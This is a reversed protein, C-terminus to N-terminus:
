DRNKRIMRKIFAHLKAPQVPKHLMVLGSQQVEKLKEPATDGSIIVAPIDAKFENRILQIAQIGTKEERLRLDAIIVDPSQNKEKLLALAENESGAIVTEYGWDMILAKMADRIISEDDIVLILTDAPKNEYHSTEMSDESQISSPNGLPLTIIFHSGVGLESEVKVTHNLLRSIRDVIALGLGLGKNRDREPNNLQQFEEFIISQQAASIGAGTDAVDIMLEQNHSQCTISIEGQHTYRIANSILNRLITELLAPDSYVVYQCPEFRWNLKKNEAQPCYEASLQNLITGIEFDKVDTQVTNADLRSVDLLANLLNELAGVSSKINKLTAQEEKGKIRKDLVGTFLSLAHLPQRLDHSAAALFKSKALNSADAEERQTALSKSKILNKKIQHTVLAAVLGTLFFYLAKIVGGSFIFKEPYLLLGLMLYSSGAIFGTFICLRPNIHLASLITVIGYLFVPPSSSLVSNPALVYFLVWLICTPHVAELFSTLYPFLKYYVSNSDEKKLLIFNIFEFSGVTVNFLIVWQYSPMIWHTALLASPLKQLTGGAFFLVSILLYVSAMALCRLRQSHMIEQSLFDQFNGSNLQEKKIKLDM